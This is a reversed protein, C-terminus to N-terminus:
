LLQGDADRRLDPGDPWSLLGALLTAQGLRKQRTLTLSRDPRRVGEASILMQVEAVVGDIM